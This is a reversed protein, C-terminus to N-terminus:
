DDSSGSETISALFSGLADVLDVADKKQEQGLKSLMDMCAEIFKHQEDVIDELMSSM